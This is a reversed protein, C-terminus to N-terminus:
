GGEGENWPTQNLAIDATQKFFADPYNRVQDLQEPTRILYPDELSGAGGDFPGNATAPVVLQPLWGFCFFILFGVMWHKARKM